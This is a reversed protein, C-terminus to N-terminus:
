LLHIPRCHRLHCLRERGIQVCALVAVRNSRALQFQLAPRQRLYYIAGRCLPTDICGTFPVPVPCVSRHVSLCVSLIYCTLLSRLAALLIFMVTSSSSTSCHRICANASRAAAGGKAGGIKKQGCLDCATSMKSM